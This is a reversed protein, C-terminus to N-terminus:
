KGDNSLVKKYGGVWIYMGMAFEFSYSSEEVGNWSKEAISQQQETEIIHRVRQLCMFQLM